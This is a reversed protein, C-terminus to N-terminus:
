PVPAEIEVVIRLSGVADLSEEDVAELHPLAGFDVRQSLGVGVDRPRERVTTGRAAAERAVAEVITVDLAGRECGLEHQELRRLVLAAREAGGEDGAVERQGCGAVSGVGVADLREQGVPYPADGTAPLTLDGTVLSTSGCPM